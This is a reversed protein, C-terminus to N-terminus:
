GATPANHLGVALSYAQKRRVLARDKEVISMIKVDGRKLNGFLWHLHDHSLGVVGIPMPDKAQAPAAFAFLM